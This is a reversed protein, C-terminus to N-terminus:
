NIKRLVQLPLVFTVLKQYYENVSGKSFRSVPFKVFPTRFFSQQFNQLVYLSIAILSDTKQAVSSSHKMKDEVRINEHFEELTENIARGM